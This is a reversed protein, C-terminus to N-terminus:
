IARLAFVFCGDFYCQIKVTALDYGCVIWKGKEGMHENIHDLYWVGMYLGCWVRVCARCTCASPVEIRPAGNCGNMGWAFASPILGPFLLSTGLSAGPSGELCSPPVLDKLLIYM